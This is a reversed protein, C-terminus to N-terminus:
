GIQAMEESLNRALDALTEVREMEVIVYGQARLEWILGHADDAWGERREVFDHLWRAMVEQATHGRAM